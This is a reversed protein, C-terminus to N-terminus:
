RSVGGVTGALECLWITGLACTSGRMDGEERNHADSHSSLLRPHANDTLRFRIALTRM